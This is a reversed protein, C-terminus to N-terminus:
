AKDPLPMETFFDFAAQLEELDKKLKPISEEKSAKEIESLKEAWAKEVAESSVVFSQETDDWYKEIEEITKEKINNDNYKKITTDILNDEWFILSILKGIEVITALIIAGIGILFGIM